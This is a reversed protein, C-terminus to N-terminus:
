DKVMGCSDEDACEDCLWEGNNDNVVVDHSGCRCVFQPDDDSTGDIKECSDVVGDYVNKGHAAIFAARFEPSIVGTATPVHAAAEAIFKPRQRIGCAIYSAVNREQPTADPDGWDRYADAIKACEEAVAQAAAEWCEPNEKGPTDWAKAYAAKAIKGLTNAKTPAATDTIGVASLMQTRLANLDIGDEKAEALIEDDPTNLIDEVLAETLNDLKQQAPTM